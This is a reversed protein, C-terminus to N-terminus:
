KLGQTRLEKLTEMELDKSTGGRKLYERKMVQTKVSKRKSYGKRYDLLYFRHTISKQIFDQDVGSVLIGEPTTKLVVKSPDFSM